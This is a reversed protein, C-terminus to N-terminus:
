GNEKTELSQVVEGFPFAFHVVSLGPQLMIVSFEQVKQNVVGEAQEPTLEVLQLIPAFNLDMTASSVPELANYAWFGGTNMARKMWESIKELEPSVIQTKRGTTWILVELGKPWPPTVDLAFYLTNGERRVDTASFSYSYTQTDEADPKVVMQEGDIRLTFWQQTSAYYAPNVSIGWLGAGKYEIEKTLNAWVPQLLEVRDAAAHVYIRLAHRGKESTMTFLTVSPEIVTPPIPKPVCAALCLLMVVMALILLRAIWAFRPDRTLGASPGKQVDDKRM